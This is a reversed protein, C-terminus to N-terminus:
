IYTSENGASESLHIVPTVPRYENSNESTSNAANNSAVDLNLKDVDEYHREHVITKVNERDDTKKEPLDENLKPIRAHVRSSSNKERMFRNNLPAVYIANEPNRDPTKPPDDRSKLTTAVKKRIVNIKDRYAQADEMYRKREFLLISLRDAHDLYIKKQRYAQYQNCREAIQIFHQIFFGLLVCLRPGELEACRTSIEIISDTAKCPNILPVSQVSHKNRQKKVTDWFGARNYRADLSVRNGYSQNVSPNQVHQTLKPNILTLTDATLIKLLMKYDLRPFLDDNYRINEMAHFVYMVPNETIRKLQKQTHLLHECPIRQFLNRDKIFYDDLRPENQSINHYLSYLLKLLCEGMGSDPWKSPNANEEIMWFLKHRIHATTLGFMTDFVPRMFTKHLMLTILYVQVQAQTLCTELYREATPFVLQWELDEILNSNGNKPVFGEPVVYCGFDKVKDVDKYDPWTCRARDLWEQACMPWELWIAPIIEYQEVRSQMLANNVMIKDCYLVCGERKVDDVTERDFSLSEGLRQQFVRKFHKMFETSSVYFLDYNHRRLAVKIRRHKSNLLHIKDENPDYIKGDATYTVKKFCRVPFEGSTIWCEDLEEFSSSQSFRSSRSPNCSSDSSYAYNDSRYGSSNSSTHDQNNLGQSKSRPTQKEWRRNGRNSLEEKARKNSRRREESSSENDYDPEITKSNRNSHPFSGNTSVNEEDYLNPLSKTLKSKSFKLMTQKSRNQMVASASLNSRPRPGYVSGDSYLEDDDEAISSLDVDDEKITKRSTVFDDLVQLQVYGQHATPKLLINYITSNNVNSYHSLYNQETIDVNDHVTYIRVPQLPEIITQRFTQRTSTFGVHRAIHEQLVDPLLVHKQPPLRKNLETERSSVLTEKVHKIEEEYNGFFQVCMMLNNLVFMEPNREMTRRLFMLEPDNYEEKRNPMEFKNGYGNSREAKKRSTPKMKSKSNGM